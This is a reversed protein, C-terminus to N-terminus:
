VNRMDHDASVLVYNPMIEGGPYHRSHAALGQVSDNTAPQPSREDYTLRMTPYLAALLLLPILGALAVRGPKRTILGAAGTWFGSHHETRARRPWFFRDGDMALLAPTLTLG